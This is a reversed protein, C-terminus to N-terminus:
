WTLCLTTTSLPESSASLALLSLFFSPYGIFFRGKAELNCPHSMMAMLICRDFYLFNLGM